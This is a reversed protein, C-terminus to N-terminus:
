RYDSYDEFEKLLASIKKNWESQKVTDLSHNTQKDYQDQLLVHKKMVSEYISNIDASVTESNFTYERYAKNLIRAHAEAIDFHGQEHNLIYDNKIRGWSLSKNFRCKISHTLGNKNYGFKVNISSSTLAANTSTADPKGRFDNWTLKRSPSWEILNDELSYAPFTSLFVLLLKYVM